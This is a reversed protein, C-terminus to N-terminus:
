GDSEDGEVPTAYLVKTGDAWVLGNHAKLLEGDPGIVTYQGRHTAQLARIAAAALVRKGEPTYDHPTVEGVWAEALVEAANRATM